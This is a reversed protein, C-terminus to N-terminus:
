PYPLLNHILLTRNIQAQGAASALTTRTEPSGHTDMIQVDGLRQAAISQTKALGLHHM